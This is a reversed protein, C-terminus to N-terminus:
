PQAWLALGAANAAAAVGERDLIVVRGAQLSIASLGADVAAAITAPGVTPLDARLDQGAKARKIFVGGRHPAREPRHSAVDALLADTGYLAEIGLCLGSAVVCGQGVDVPALADLIAGGRAADTIEDRSPTRASMVGESALIGPAVDVLGAVNLDFAEILGIVWRLAADDGGQMAAMLAPVFGATERDFLSPDLVPRHIAGALVVQTIGQDGLHRLFPALREFRFALDVPLADPTVGEPACVLVPQGRVSFDAVLAAPLAGAGAILAIRSM